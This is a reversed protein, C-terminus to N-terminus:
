ALEAFTALGLDVLDLVPCVTHNSRHFSHLIYLWCFHMLHHLLSAQYPIETAVFQNFADVKVVVPFINEDHELVHLLARECVNDSLVILLVGLVEAPVAQVFHCEAKVLHM